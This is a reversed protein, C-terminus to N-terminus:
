VLCLVCEKILLLFFSDDLLSVFLHYRAYKEIMRKILITGDKWPNDDFGMSPKNRALVQEEMEKITQPVEYERGAQNDAGSDRGWSAPLSQM